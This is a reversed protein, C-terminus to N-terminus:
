WMGRTSSPATTATSNGGSKRIGTTEASILAVAIFEAFAPPSAGPETHCPFKQMSLKDTTADIVSFLGNLKGVKISIDDVVVEIKNMTIILKIGLVILVVLLISGLMYLLIQLFELLEM